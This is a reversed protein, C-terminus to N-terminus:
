IDMIGIKLDVSESHLALSDLSATVHELQSILIYPDPCDMLKISKTLTDVSLYYGARSFSRMAEQEPIGDGISIVNFRDGQSQLAMRVMLEDFFTKEKWVVPITSLHRYRAQASVIPLGLIIPLLRPMFLACSREVWQGMANTIIMVRGLQVATTLLDWAVKALKECVDLIEQTPPVGDKLIYGRSRLWGTCLLTDDWDFILLTGERSFDNSPKPSWRNEPTFDVADGIVLTPPM